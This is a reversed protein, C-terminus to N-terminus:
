WAIGWIEGDKGGCCWERPFPGDVDMVVVRGDAKVRPRSRKGLDKELGTHERCSRSPDKGAAGRLYVEVVCTLVFDDVVLDLVNSHRRRCKGRGTREGGGRGPHAAGDLGSHQGRWSSVLQWDEETHARVQIVSVCAENKEGRALAGTQRSGRWVGTCPHASGEMSGRVVLTECLIMSLTSLYLPSSPVLPNVAVSLGLLTLLVVPRM